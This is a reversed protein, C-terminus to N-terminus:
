PLAAEGPPTVPLGELSVGMVASLVTAMNRVDLMEEIREHTIEPYNRRLSEYTVEVVIALEEVGPVAGVKLGQLKILGPELKRLSRLTLPPVIYDVGGMRVKVGDIM